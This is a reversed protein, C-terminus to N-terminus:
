LIIKRILSFVIFPTKLKKDNEFSQIEGNKNILFIKNEKNKVIFRINPIIIEIKINIVNWVILSDNETISYIKNEKIIFDKYNVNLKTNGKINNTNKIQAKFSYICFFLVLFTINVHKKM